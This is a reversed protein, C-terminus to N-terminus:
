AAATEDASTAAPSACTRRALTRSVEALLLRRMDARPTEDFWDLFGRCAAPEGLRRDAEYCTQAFFGEADKVEELGDGKWGCYTIACAGDVTCEQICPGCPPSTTEGQLLRGDDCMLARRLAELGTTSLLPAFGQRWVRRWAEM